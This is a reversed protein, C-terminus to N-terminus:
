GFQIRGVADGEVRTSVEPDGVLVIVSDQLALGGNEVWLAAIMTIPWDLKVDLSHANVEVQAALEVANNSGLARANSEAPLRQTASPSLL